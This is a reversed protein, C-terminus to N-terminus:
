GPGEWVVPCAPGCGATRTADRVRRYPQHFGQLGLDVWYANPLARSLIWSGAVRSSGKGTGAWERAKRDPIGLARLNRWRTRYRKWEKWRVQRMRRRLWEDLAHLPSSADALAYYATWGLTFRNVAEIRRELSVGWSRATLRRLRDQARKRAEPDISVGVTGDRRRYFGFGLFPRETAPAVASKRRSVRLKLRSEGFRTSSELVREGARECRVYVMRDDAHASATAAGSWSATSTTSCSTALCRRSPSGQPTGEGTAQRVSEAMVGAELSRRLLRLVKKDQVRRAVRAMLADHQVRDFFSDLDLDVVFAADDAIFRRARAVAQHASRGPRFGFSSQSFHPDFVPHAGAARPVPTRSSADSRGPSTRTPSSSSGSPRRPPTLRPRTRRWPTAASESRLDDPKM